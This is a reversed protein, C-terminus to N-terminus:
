IGVRFFTSSPLPHTREKGIDQQAALPFTGRRARDIADDDIDTAISYAEEGGSCGPVWVRLPDDNRRNELLGPLARERLDEFAEPERFFSTVGILLDRFLLDIEKPNGQLYKVYDELRDIRRLVTSEKYASFDHGVHSRLIVFIKDLQGKFREPKQEV